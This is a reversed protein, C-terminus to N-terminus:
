TIIHCVGQPLTCLKVRNVELNDMVSATMWTIIVSTSHAVRLCFSSSDGHPEAMNEEERGHYYHLLSFYNEKMRKLELSPCTWCFLNLFSFLVFFFHIPMSNPLFPLKGRRHDTRLCSVSPHHGLCLLDGPHFAGTSLLVPRTM